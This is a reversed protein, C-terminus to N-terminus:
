GTAESAQILRHIPSVIWISTLIGIVIAVALALLCLLITMRTNAQIQAMFDSEPVAVVILWNLGRAEQLPTLQVFQQKDDIKLTLLKTEQFNSLDQFNETLYQSLTRIIPNQSAIGPVRKTKGEENVVSQEPISSAVLLGNPELIFIQGSQGVKVGKLFQSIWDLSLDVSMVGRFIGNGDYFPEVASIAITAADNSFNYIESWTPKGAQVAAQYWPRTRPDYTPNQQLLKARRGQYDVEFRHRVFNYNQDSIEIYFEGDKKGVGAYEKEEGGVAIVRLQPFVENRMEFFYNILPQINETNWLNQRRIERIMIANAKHPTELYNNLYQQVRVTIENRLAETVENVAKRGNQLSLWGTLGVATVIQLVFPIILVSRLRLKMM